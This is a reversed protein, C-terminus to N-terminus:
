TAEPEDSLIKKLEKLLQSNPVVYDIGASRARTLLETRVHPFFGLIRPSPFFAKLTRTCSFPDYESSALDLVVLLPKRTEAAKKLGEEGAVFEAEFGLAKAAEIIRSQLFLDTTAALVVRPMELGDLTESFTISDQRESEFRM